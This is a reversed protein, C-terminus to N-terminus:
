RATAGSAPAHKWGLERISREQADISSNGSAANAPNAANTANTANATDIAPKPNTARPLPPPPASANWDRAAPPAAAGWDRSSPLRTSNAGPPLPIASAAAPQASSALPKWGTSLITREMLTQADISSADLALAESAHQQVCAWARENACKDAAQLANDRRQEREAIDRQISRADPNDADRALAANTAARADSLDNEQLSARAARLSDPVDKYQPMVRPPSTAVPMRAGASPSALNAQQQPSYPSISGGSTNSTAPEDTTPEAKRSEGLLLYAAYALAVFFWVLLLGKTFIWRGATQWMPAPINLPSIQRDQPMVPPIDSATTIAPPHPAPTGVAKLATEPHKRVITELPHDAGCYPCFDVHQYLVGGCRKCPTPFSQDPTTQASM